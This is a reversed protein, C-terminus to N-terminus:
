QFSLIERIALLLQHDVTDLKKKQSMRKIHFACTGRIQQRFLVCLNKDIAFPMGTRKYSLGYCRPCIPNFICRKCGSVTYEERNGMNFRSANAIEDDTLALSSFMHCPYKQGDVDVTMYNKGIGCCQKMPQDFLLVRRIDIDILDVLPIEPHSLYYNAMLLMQEGFKDVNDKSWIPEGCAVNATVLIGREQLKIINDALNDVGKESITM